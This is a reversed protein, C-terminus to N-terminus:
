YNGTERKNVKGQLTEMIKATIGMVLFTSILISAVIAPLAQSVLKWDGMIGVSLPVLILALNQIFFNATREVWELKVLGSLLGGLLIVLGLLNGPLPLGSYKAITEGLFFCVM